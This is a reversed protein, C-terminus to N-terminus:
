DSHWESANSEGFESILPRSLMDVVMRDFGHSFLLPFRHSKSMGGRAVVAPKAARARLRM